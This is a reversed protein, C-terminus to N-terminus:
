PLDREMRQRRAHAIAQYGQVLRESLASAVSLLQRHRAAAAASRAGAVLAATPPGDTARAYEVPHDAFTASLGVLAYGHLQTSSCGFEQRRVLMQMHGCGLFDHPIVDDAGDITRLSEGHQDFIFLQSGTNSTGGTAFLVALHEGDPGHLSVPTIRVPTYPVSFSSLPARQGLCSCRHIMREETGVWLQLLPRGECHMGDGFASLGEIPWTPAMCSITSVMPLLSPVNMVLESSSCSGDDSGASGVGSGRKSPEAGGSASLLILTAPPAGEGVGGEDPRRRLLIALWVTSSPDRTWSFSGLVAPSAKFRGAVRSADSEDGDFAAAIMHM